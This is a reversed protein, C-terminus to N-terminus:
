AAEEQRVRRGHDHAARALVVNREAVDGRFRDRIAAEVAEIEVLDTAGALFGLMATSTRSDGLHERALETAPVTLVGPVDRLEDPVATANLLVIGDPTLGELVDVSKTLTPDQVVVVAPHHVEGRDLIPERDLRAFAAVPAGTRETGFAPFGLSRWGSRFAADVLLAALTVTGQGGRGHMRIEIPPRM